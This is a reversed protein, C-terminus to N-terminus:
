DDDDSSTPCTLTSVFGEPMPVGNHNFRIDGKRVDVKIAKKKATAFSITALIEQQTIDKGGFPDPVTAPIGFDAFNPGVNCDLVARDRDGAKSLSGDLECNAGSITSPGFLPPMDTTPGALVTLTLDVTTFTGDVKVETESEIVGLSRFEIEVRRNLTTSSDIYVAKGTLCFEDFAQDINALSTIKDFSVRDVFFFPGDLPPPPGKGALLAAPVLLAAVLALVLRMPRM